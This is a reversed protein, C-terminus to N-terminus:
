EISRWAGLFRAPRARCEGKAPRAIATQSVPLMTGAGQARGDTPNVKPRGSLPRAGASFPSFRGPGSLAFGSGSQRKAKLPLQWQAPLQRSSKPSCAVTM